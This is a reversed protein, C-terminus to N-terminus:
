QPSLFFPDPLNQPECGLFKGTCYQLASSEGFKLVASAGTSTIIKNFERTNELSIM